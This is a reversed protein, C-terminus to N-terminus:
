GCCEQVTRRERVRAPRLEEPRCWYEAGHWVVCWLAVDGAEDVGLGVIRVLEGAALDQVRTVTVALGDDPENSLTLIATEKRMTGYGSM